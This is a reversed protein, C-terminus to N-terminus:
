RRFPEYRCDEYGSILATESLSAARKKISFGSHGSFEVLGVGEDGEHPSCIWSTWIRISSRWSNLRSGPLDSRLPTLVSAEQGNKTVAIKLAAM